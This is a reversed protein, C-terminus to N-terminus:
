LNKQVIDIKNEGEDNEDKEIKDLIRGLMKLYM